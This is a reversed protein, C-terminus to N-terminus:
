KSIKGKTIKKAEAQWKKLKSKSYKVKASLEGLSMEALDRADFIGAHILEKEVSEGVGKIETLPFAVVYEMKLMQTNKAHSTRRRMDVAIGLEKAQAVTLGADLLEKVSFGRGIRSRGRRDPVQVIPAVHRKAM